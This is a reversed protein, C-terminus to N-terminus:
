MWIEEVQHVSPHEARVAIRRRNRDLHVEGQDGVGTRWHGQPGRQLRQSPSEFPTGPQDELGESLLRM